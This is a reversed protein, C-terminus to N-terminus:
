AALLVSLGKEDTRGGVNVEEGTSESEHTVLESLAGQLNMGTNARSTLATTAQSKVAEGDGLVAIGVGHWDEHDCSCGCM